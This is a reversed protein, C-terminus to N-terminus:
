VHIPQKEDIPGLYIATTVLTNVGDKNEYVKDSNLMLKADFNKEFMQLIKELTKSANIINNNKIIESFSNIYYKENEVLKVMNYEISRKLFYDNNEDKYIEHELSIINMNKKDLRKNLFEQTIIDLESIECLASGVINRSELKKKFTKIENMKWFRNM